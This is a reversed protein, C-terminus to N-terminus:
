VVVTPMLQERDASSENSKMMTKKSQSKAYVAIMWVCLQLHSLMQVIAKNSDISVAGSGENLKNNTLTKGDRPPDKQDQGTIETFQGKM